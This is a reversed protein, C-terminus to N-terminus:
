SKKQKRIFGVIADPLIRHFFVRLKSHKISSSELNSELYEEIEEYSKWIERKSFDVNEIGYKEFLAANNFGWRGRFVGMGHIPALRFPYILGEEQAVSPNLAYYDWKSKYARRTGNEEFEWPSESKRILKLLISKRWIATTCCVCLNPHRKELKLLSRNNEPIAGASGVPYLVINAINEDKKIYKMMEELKSSNVKDMLFYDDMLFLIYESPIQNLADYLRESWTEGGHRSLISVVPFDVDEEYSITETNLYVPYTLDQWNTKLLRFFPYWLDSYKDCSNVLISLDSKNESVIM